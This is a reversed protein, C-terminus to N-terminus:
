WAEEFAVELRPARRRLAAVAALSTATGTLELTTLRTLPALITDIDSHQVALQRNGVLSLTHLGTAMAVAPPLRRVQNYGLDLLELGAWPLPTNCVHPAPM